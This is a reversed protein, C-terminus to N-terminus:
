TKSDDTERVNPEYELMAWVEELTFVSGCSVCLFPKPNPNNKNHVVEMMLHECPESTTVAAVQEPM